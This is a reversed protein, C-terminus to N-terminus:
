WEYYFEQWDGDGFPNEEDIVGQSVAIYEYDGAFEYPEGRHDFEYLPGINGEDFIEGGHEKQFACAAEMAAAKNPYIKVNGITKM